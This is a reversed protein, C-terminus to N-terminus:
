YIKGNGSLWREGGKREGGKGDDREMGVWKKGKGEGGEGGKREKMKRRNEEKEKKKTCKPALLNSRRTHEKFNIAFYNKWL